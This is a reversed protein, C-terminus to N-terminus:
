NNKKKNKLYPLNQVFNVKKNNQFVKLIKSIKNKHFYDDSDLLFIISGKSKRFINIYGNM